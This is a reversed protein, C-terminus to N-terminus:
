ENMGEEEEASERRRNGHEDVHALALVILADADAGQAKELGGHLLTLADLGDLVPGEEDGANADEKKEGEDESTGEPGFCLGAEGAIGLGDDEDVGGAAERMGFCRITNIFDDLADLFVERGLAGEGDGLEGVHHLDGLFGLGDGSGGGVVGGGDVPGDLMEGTGLVRGGGNVEDGVELLRGRGALGGRSQGASTGVVM